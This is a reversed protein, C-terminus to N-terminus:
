SNVAESVPSEVVFPNKADSATKVLKVVSETNAFILSVQDKDYEFPVNKGILWYDGLAIDGTRESIAYKCSYCNRRYIIAQHYRIQYVDNQNLTKDYFVNRCEERVTFHFKETNFEPDRFSM